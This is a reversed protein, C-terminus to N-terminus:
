LRVNGSELVIVPEPGVAFGRRDPAAWANLVEVTRTTILAGAFTAPKDILVGDVVECSQREHKLRWVDNKTATGPAPRVRVRDPPYGRFRELLDSVYRFRM